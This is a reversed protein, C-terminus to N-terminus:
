PHANIHVVQVRGNQLLKVRYYPGHSGQELAMNLIRGGFQRLARGAAVSPSIIPTHHAPKSDSTQQTAEDESTSHDTQTIIAESEVQAAGYAPETAGITLSLSWFLWVAVLWAAWHLGTAVVTARPRRM